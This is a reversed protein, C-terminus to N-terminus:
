LAPVPLTSPQIASSGPIVTASIGKGSVRSYTRLTSSARPSYRRLYARSSPRYSRATVVLRRLERDVGAPEDRLQRWTIRVVLYGAATLVRDRRRDEEFARRRGHTAYGDLEVIVRANPWLADVIYGEVVTNRLPPPLHHDTLFRRFRDELESGTVVDLDGADTLRKLTAVGRRGPYRAIVVHLGTEDALRNVEAERIAREVTQVPDTAALDLITRAVTTVPIGRVTEREDREIFSESLLLGPQDRRRTATTVRIAGPRRPLLRHLEAASRHSLM